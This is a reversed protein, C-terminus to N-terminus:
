LKQILITGFYDFGYRKMFAKERKSIISIQECNNEKAWENIKNFVMDTAETDNEELFADIIACEKILFRQTINAVLYGVAVGEKEAKWVQINASPFNLTVWSLYGAMSIYKDIGIEGYLKQILPILEDLEKFITVKKVEM